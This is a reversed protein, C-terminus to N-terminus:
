KKMLAHMTEIVHRLRIPKDIFIDAGAELALERATPGGASVAIVPLTLKLETRLAHIVHAGDIVPLYIDIIAADFTHSRLLDLAERGNSATEVAFAVEGGRRGMGALGSRVMAAVHPNDEVVLVRVLQAIVRPDRTRVREIIAALRDRGEGELFEIGVGAEDGTRSWRVEGDVHIPEMLGPFSLALRVRTGHPLARGTAVFTGGSSLNDTYDGVLDDADQYDVLLTVEARAHRRKEGHPGEGEDDTTM